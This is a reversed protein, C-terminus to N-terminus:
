EGPDVAVNLRWEFERIKDNYMSITASNQPADWSLRTRMYIYDAIAGVMSEDETYESWVNSADAIRYGEEPGVGLQNLIMFASNIHLILEQDFVTYEADVGLMKKISNLISEM